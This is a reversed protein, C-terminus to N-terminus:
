DESRHYLYSDDTEDTYGHYSAAGGGGSDEPCHISLAQQLQMEEHRLEMSDVLDYINAMSWVPSPFWAKLDGDKEVVVMSFYDRNIKLQDRLRKVVDQSLPERESQSKGNLPFLELTGSATPEKGVLKLLAFHRIGMQCEQGNLAQLQQHLLYDEETPASIILLRRKSMFRLLSNEEENNIESPACPSSGKKEQEKELQRSQFSDIYNIIALPATPLDFVKRLKPIMDYDAVVMSFEKSVLGYEKRIQSILDSNKSSDPLSPLQPDGDQQYHQLRLTTSHDSGLVALVTVKRFAFACSHLENDDRQQIYQSSVESPSSIVLLRRKGKLKDTFENLAAKKKSDSQSKKGRKGKKKQGDKKGKGKKKSKSSEVIQEGKIEKDATFGDSSIGVGKDVKSGSDHKNGGKVVERDGGGETNKRNNDLKPKAEEKRGSKVATLPIGGGSSSPTKHIIFRSRGDLIDRVQSKIAAKKDLATQIPPFISTVNGQKLASFIKKKNASSQKVVLRKKTIKCKQHSGKRTVKELKRMPLQDIAELIAEVRVPYPFKESVKLNKKLILMSFTQHELELYHLLKTVMDSDMAEETARGQMTTHQIKGEMMANQIIIVILTDREALRCNLGESEQIQKEMMHLYNDSHSPATIVWLRKKGAFDSLFDTELAGTSEREGAQEAGAQERPGAPEDRVEPQQRNMSTRASHVSSCSWLILGVLVLCLHRM